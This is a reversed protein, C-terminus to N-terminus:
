QEISNKPVTYKIELYAVVKRWLLHALVFILVVASVVSFTDKTHGHVHVMPLAYESLLVDALLGLLISMIAVTGVYIAVVRGGFAKYLMSITAINTAPGAMLFVLASGIPLGAAILSSVIPVSSTACIYLPLSLCLMLLMGPLGQTWPLTSLAGVPVVSQLIAAAMIGIILYIDIMALLDYLCFRVVEYIGKKQLKVNSQNVEAHEDECCSQKSSGKECCCCSSVIADERGDDFVNVIIGGVMGSVLAAFVKYLAFPLGLFSATVMISDVGTQPTAILFGTAAGKSAGSARLSIATPVVSCSCLPLPIGIMVAEFVSRISSSNLRRKIFDSPVYVHLFGAVGLGIFLPASLDLLVQWVNILFTRLFEIFIM